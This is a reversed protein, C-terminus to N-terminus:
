RESSGRGLLFWTKTPGKGKIEVLHPESFVYRDCLREFVSDSVQIRGPVGHSELRSAMNVTDGWLDYAFKRRGIVGAVAPGSAVGVRVGMEDGSPWRAGILCEIADLAMEAAAEADDERPEPAGAVAMYADGVTKIKELGHRDALEDFRTFIEDLSAVMEAPTTRGAQQTFGVLDVFVVTVEGHGEAIYEADLAVDREKLRDVIAGPLINRLLRDGRERERDLEQERLYLLRVGREIGFSAATGILFASVLFFDAFLLDVTSDDLWALMVLNAYGITVAGIVTAWTWPLRAFTFNFTLILMLGAFGWASDAENVFVRYTAWVVASTLLVFALQPKWYKEFARAYSFALSAVAVPVAIGYRLLSDIEVDNELVLLALLGFLIWTAIGFVHAVRVYQLNDRFYADQFRRETQPDVFRLLWPRMEPAPAVFDRIAARIM